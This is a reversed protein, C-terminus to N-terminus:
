FAFHFGDEFVEGTIPRRKGIYSRWFKVTFIEWFVRFFTKHKKTPFLLFTNLFIGRRKQKGTHFTYVTREFGKKVPQVFPKTSFTVLQRASAATKALHRIIYSLM